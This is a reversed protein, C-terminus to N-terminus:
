KRRKKEEKRLSDFERLMEKERKDVIKLLKKLDKDKFAKHPDNVQVLMDEKQSKVADVFKKKYLDDDKKWTKVEDKNENDFRYKYKIPMINELDGMILAINKEIRKKEDAKSYDKRVHYRLSEKRWVFAVKVESVVPYPRVRSSSQTLSFYKDTEALRTYYNGDMSHTFADHRAFLVGLSIGFDVDIAGKRYEYLPLVYGLSAGVGYTNQARLGYKVFKFAYNAYNAYAGVYQARWTKAKKKDSFRFYYRFEPRIDLIDYVVPPSYRVMGNTMHLTNWNCKANLGITMYRYPNSTLRYEFGINPIVVLWELANTRVAIRDKFQLKVEASDGPEVAQTAYVPAALCLLIASIM